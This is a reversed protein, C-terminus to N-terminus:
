SAAGGAATWLEIVQATPDSSGSALLLWERDGELVEIGAKVVLDEFRERTEHMDTAEFGVTATGDGNVTVQPPPWQVDPEVESSEALPDAAVPPGDALVTPHTRELWDRLDPHLREGLARLDALAREAVPDGRHRLLLGVIEAGRPIDYSVSGLKRRALKALHEAASPLDDVTGHRGLVREASERVPASRSRLLETWAERLDTGWFGAAVELASARAWGNGDAVLGSLVERLQEDPEAAGLALVAVSQRDPDADTVVALLAKRLLSGVPVEAWRVLEIAREGAYDPRRVLRALLGEDLAVSSGSLLRCRAADVVISILAAAEYADDVSGAMGLVLPEAGPTNFVACGLVFIARRRDRDDGIGEVISALADVAESGAIAEARRRWPGGNAHGAWGRIVTKLRRPRAEDVLDDFDLAGVELGARRLVNLPVMVAKSRPSTRATVAVVTGASDLSLDWDDSIGSVAAALEGPSTPRILRLRFAHPVDQDISGLPGGVVAGFRASTGM